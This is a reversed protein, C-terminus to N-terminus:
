HVPVNTLVQGQLRPFPFPNRSRFASLFQAVRGLVPAPSRCGRAAVLPLGRRRLRARPGGPPALLLPVLGRVAAGAAPLTSVLRPLEQCKWKAHSSKKQLIPVRTAELEVSVLQEWDAPLMLASDCVYALWQVRDGNGKGLCMAALRKAAQSIMPDCVKLKVVRSRSIPEARKMEKWFLKGWGVVVALVGKKDQHSVITIQYITNINANRLGTDSSTVCMQPAKINALRVESCVNPLIIFQFLPSSISSVFAMIVTVQKMPSLM